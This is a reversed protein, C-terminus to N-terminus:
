FHYAIGVRAEGRNIIIATKLLLETKVSFDDSIRFYNGVGVDLLPAVAGSTAYIGLGAIAYPAFKEHNLFYYHGVIDGVFFNQNIVSKFKSSYALRSYGLSVEGSLKDSFGLEFYAAVGFGAANINTTPFNVYLSEYDSNFEYFGHGTIGVTKKGRKNFGSSSYSPTKKPPTLVVVDTTTTTTTTTTKDTTKSKNSHKKTSNKSTSKTKTKTTDSFSDVSVIPTDQVKVTTTGETSSTSTTSQAWATNTLFVLFGIIALTTLKNLKNM